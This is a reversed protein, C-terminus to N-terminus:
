MFAGAAVHDDVGVRNSIEDLMVSVATIAEAAGGSLGYESVIAGVAPVYDM